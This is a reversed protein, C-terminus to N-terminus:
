DHLPEMPSRWRLHGVPPAAYYINLFNYYQGKTNVATPQYCVYGLNVIPVAHDTHITSYATSLVLLTNVAYALFLVPFSFLM